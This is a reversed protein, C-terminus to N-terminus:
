LLLISVEEAVPEEKKAEAPTEAPTAEVPASEAVPAAEEQFVLLTSEETTSKETM